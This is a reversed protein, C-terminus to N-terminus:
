NFAFPIAYIADGQEWSAYIVYIYNNPENPLTITNNTISVLNNGSNQLVESEMKSPEDDFTIELEANSSIINNDMDEVLNSPAPSNASAVRNDNSWSYTGRKYSVEEGDVTFTPEPPEM